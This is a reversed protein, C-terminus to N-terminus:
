VNEYDSDIIASDDMDNDSDSEHAVRSTSATVNDSKRTTSERAKTEKKKQEKHPLDKYFQHYVPPIYDLLTQLDKWKATTIMIEDTNTSLINELKLSPRGRPLVSVWKSFPFDEQLSHKFQFSFIAADKSYKFHNIERFHLPKKEVDLKPDNILTNLKQFTFFMQQTMEHVVFSRASSKIVSTWHQPIFVQPNKRKAQEILAFARDCEMYTHGPELFKHHIEQLHTSQVLFMFLKSIYKNKNQGGCSDSYAILKTVTPPLTKIFQLLCSGIAQSGRSAINESWTFMHAKNHLLDYVCFNYTWLQRLYFVKSTTILPTPLTQQLDFCVVLTDASSIYTDIDIKKTECALEAKCHHVSLQVKTEAVNRQDTSHKIINQYKDCRSCTDSHPRHFRLNFHNNFVYRYYSLKVPTRHDEVCIEKYLKYMCQVNLESSLYRSAANDKRSYHSRYRPFKNIHDTILKTDNESIKRHSTGKGRKDPEVIGLDSTKQM